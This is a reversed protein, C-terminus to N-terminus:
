AKIKISRKLRYLGYFDLLFFSLLWSPIFRNGFGGYLANKGVGRSGVEQKQMHIICILACQRRLSVFFLCLMFLIYLFSLSFILIFFVLLNERVGRRQTLFAKFAKRKFQM